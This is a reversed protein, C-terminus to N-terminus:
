RAAETTDPGATGYTGAPSRFLTGLGPRFPQRDLLRLGEWASVQNATLVIKGVHDELAVLHDATHLATDPMMLADADAHDGAAAM